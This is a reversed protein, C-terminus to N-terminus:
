SVRPNTEWVADVFDSSLYNPIYDLKKILWEPSTGLYTSRGKYVEDFHENIKDYFNDLEIVSLLSSKMKIYYFPSSLWKEWPAREGVIGEIMTDFCMASKMMYKASDFSKDNAYIIGTHIKGENVRSAKNLLKESKEVITVEYGIKDLKFAALVGQLGGGLVLAKKKM